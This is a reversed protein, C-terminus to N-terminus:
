RSQPPALREARCNGHAIPRAGRNASRSAPAWAAGGQERYGETGLIRKTVCLFRRARQLQPPTAISARAAPTVATADSKRVSPTSLPRVPHTRSSFTKVVAFTPRVVSRHFSFSSLV